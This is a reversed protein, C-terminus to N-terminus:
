EGQGQARANWEQARRILKNVDVGLVSAIAGALENPRALLDAVTWFGSARLQRELAEPSVELRGIIDAWPAGYAMGEEPHRCTATRGDANLTLESLPLFARQLPDGWEILANSGKRSIVRVTTELNDFRQPATFM